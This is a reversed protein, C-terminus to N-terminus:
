ADSINRVTEVTNRKGKEKELYFYELTYCKVSWNFEIRYHLSRELNTQFLISRVQQYLWFNIEFKSSLAPESYPAHLLFLLAYRYMLKFLRCFCLFVYPKSMPRHFITILLSTLVSSLCSTLFLCFLHKTM